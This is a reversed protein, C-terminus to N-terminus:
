MISPKFYYVECLHDCVSCPEASRLCQKECAFVACTERGELVRFPNALTPGHGIYVQPFTEFNVFGHSKVFHCIFKM